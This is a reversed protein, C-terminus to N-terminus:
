KPPIYTVTQVIESLASYIKELEKAALYIEKNLQKLRFIITQYRQDEVDIKVAGKALSVAYDISTALREECTSKFNLTDQVSTGPNNGTDDSLGAAQLFQYCFSPIVKGSKLDRYSELYMRYDNLIKSLRSRLSVAQDKKSLENNVCKEFNAQLESFAKEALIGIQPFAINGEDEKLINYISNPAPLVCTGFLFDERSQEFSNKDNNSQAREEVAAKIEQFRLMLIDAPLTAESAVAKTVLNFKSSLKDNASPKAKDGDNLFKLSLVRLDNFYRLASNTSDSIFVFQATGDRQTWNNQWFNNTWKKYSGLGKPQLNLDSTNNALVNNTINPSGGSLDLGTKFGNIITNKIILRNTQMELSNDDKLNFLDMRLGTADAIGIGANGDIAVKSISIHADPTLDDAQPNLIYIGYALDFAEIKLNEFGGGSFDFQAIRDDAFGNCATTKAKRLVTKGEFDIECQESSIFRPRIITRSIGRGSIILNNLQTKDEVFGGSNSRERYFNIKHSLEYVGNELQLVCQGNENLRFEYGIGSGLPCLGGNAADLISSLDYLGIVASDAQWINKKYEDFLAVKYCVANNYREDSFADADYYHGVNSRAWDDDIPLTNELDFNSRCDTRWLKYSLADEPMDWLVDVGREPDIVTMVSDIKEDFKIAPDLEIKTDTKGTQSFTKNAPLFFSLTVIAIAVSVLGIYLHNLYTKM